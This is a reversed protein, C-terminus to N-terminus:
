IFLVVAFWLLSSTQAAGSWDSAERRASRWVGLVMLWNYPLPAFFVCIALWLPLDRAIMIMAAAGTALNLATGVMLMDVWFAKRLPVEGRKRANVASRAASWREKLTTM